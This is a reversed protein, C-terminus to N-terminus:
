AQVSGLIRAKNKSIFAQKKSHLKEISKEVM